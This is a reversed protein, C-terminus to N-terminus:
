NNIMVSTMSLSGMVIKDNFFKIQENKEKMSLTYLLPLYHELTPIALNARSGLSKYNVLEKHNEELILNKLIDNIEEAWDYANNKNRWDAMRLNHVINGSGIILVGKNRLSSLEKGLEYHWQPSKNLAISLQVIPIDAKPFVHKMVSWYGHDLGWDTDSIITTSKIIGRTLEALAPSGEAPYEVDFLEKPFGYFDHITKPKEMSTVYSGETEWHASICLVAEPKPLENGLKKWKPSFENEEIAYMPNGHGIFLLPMKVDRIRFDNM